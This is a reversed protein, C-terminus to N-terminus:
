SDDTGPKRVYPAMMELLDSTVFPKTIVTNMGAALAADIQEQRANATIGIIDLHRELRGSKELARIETSCLLGNMIPMEVDMLVIDPLPERSGDELLCPNLLFDLAEAGNNVAQVICGANKIQRCLVQQNVINDEVILVRSDKLANLIPPALVIKTSNRKLLPRKVLSIKQPASSSSSQTSQQFRAKVYFVFTSGKGPESNVGMDGGHKVALKQSIYLGLGSGGYQLFTKPSSQQFRGFLRGTEEESMGSGTDTISVVLYINEDSPWSLTLDDTGDRDPAWNVEDRCQERPDFKTVGYKLTIERRDQARTFKIANTMLNVMIQTVRAPDCDIWELKLGSISPEAIIQTNISLANLEVEFIKFVDNVFSSLHVPTASIPLGKFNLKSLTLIDDVIRKQHRSCVLITTADQANEITAAKYSELTEGAAECRAPATSIMDACQLIASLPNRIEHSVMDVFEEQELKAERAKQAERAQWSESWKIRSIDTICCMISKIQCDETYPFAFVLLCVPEPDGIPPIFDRNIRLEIEILTEGQLIRKFSETAKIHDEELIPTLFPFEQQDHIMSGEPAAPQQDTTPNPMGTLKYYQDNAWLTSGDIALHQMGVFGFQAMYRIQKESAALEKQLRRERRVAEEISILSDMTSSLQRSVDRLYQQNEEEEQRRPNTGIVLFGLSKGGGLLPLLHVYKCPEGFGQWSIGEFEETVPTSIIRSKAERFLPIFGESNNLNAQEIALKHGEPVGIRGILRILSTEPGREETVRYLLAMSVDRANTQLADIVHKGYSALTKEFPQALLNLMATRRDALTQKTVEVLANYFGEVMGTNGRLPNFNGTFYTEEFYNSREVYLEIENVDVAVGRTAATIFLQKIDDWIEPFGEQFTASM